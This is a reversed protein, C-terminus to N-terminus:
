HAPKKLWSVLWDPNVKSGIGTLYSGRRAGANQEVGEVQHCGLCGVEGILKKGNEANGASYKAFPQYTKSHEWIYESIANVEAINKRM